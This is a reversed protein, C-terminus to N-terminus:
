AEDDSKEKEREQRKKTEKDREKMRERQGEMRGGGERYRQVRQQCDIQTHFYAFSIAELLIDTGLPPFLGM